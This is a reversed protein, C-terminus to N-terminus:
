RTELATKATDYDDYADMAPDDWEAAFTKLRARLDAAQVEDLGYAALDIQPDTLFTVIVQADEPIDQPQEALIIQGNRYVGTIRKLM